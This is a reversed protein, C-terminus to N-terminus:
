PACDFAACEAVRDPPGVRLTWRVTVMAEGGKTTRPDARSPDFVLEGETILVELVVIRTGSQGFVDM